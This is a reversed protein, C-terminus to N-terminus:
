HGERRVVQVHMCLANWPRASGDLLAGRVQQNNVTVFGHWDPRPSHRAGLFLLLLTAGTALYLLRRKSLVRRPGHRGLPRAHGSGRTDVVTHWGNPSCKM